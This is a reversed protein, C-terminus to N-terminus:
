VLWLRTAEPKLRFSALPALPLTAAAATTFAPSKRLTRVAHRLDRELDELWVFSGVERYVEKTQTVGGFSRQAARRAEEPSLGQRVYEETAEALHSSIEDDLDRDGQRSRGVGRLRSLFIRLRTM